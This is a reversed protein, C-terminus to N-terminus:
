GLPEDTFVCRKYVRRGAADEEEEGGPKAELSWFSKRSAGLARREREAPLM